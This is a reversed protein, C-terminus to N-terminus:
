AGLLLTLILLSDITNNRDTVATVPTVALAVAATLGALPGFPRAILKYLLAVSLVGALAEPALLSLSNFGFIKASITEIWLGLPPKDVSVFGGADSSVFFFSHWSTLMSKVAAAYYTNAYQEDTLGIFELGASAILVLGLALRHRHASLLALWALVRPRGAQVARSEGFVIAM